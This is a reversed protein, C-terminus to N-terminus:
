EPDNWSKLSLNWPLYNAYIQMSSPVCHGYLFNLYKSVFLRLAACMLFLNQIVQLGSGSDQTLFNMSQHTSSSPYIM